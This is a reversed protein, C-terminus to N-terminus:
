TPYATTGLNESASKFARTSHAGMAPPDDDVGASAAATVLPPPSPKRAAPISVGSPKTSAMVAALFSVVPGSRTLRKTDRLRHSVRSLEALERCGQLVSDSMGPDRQTFRMMVVVGPSGDVFCHSCHAVADVTKHGLSRLRTPMPAGIVWRGDRRRFCEVM